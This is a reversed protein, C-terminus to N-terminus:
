EPFKVFKFRSEIESKSLFYHEFYYDGSEPDEYILHYKDDWGSKILTYCAPGDGIQETEKM